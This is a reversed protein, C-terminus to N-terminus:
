TEVYHGALPPRSGPTHGAPQLPSVIGLPIQQSLPPAPETTPPSYPPSALNPPWGARPPLCSGTTRRCPVASTGGAPTTERAARRWLCISATGARPPYSAHCTVGPVRLPPCM